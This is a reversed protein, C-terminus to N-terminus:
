EESNGAEGFSGFLKEGFVWVAFFVAGDVVADEM